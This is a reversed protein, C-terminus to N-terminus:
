AGATNANNAREMGQKVIQMARARGSTGLPRFKKGQLQNYVMFFERIDSAFSKDLRTVAGEPVFTKSNIPVAILRDNRNTKGKETQQAELVGLLRGLTLCGTFTPENTVVLVDLPDGDGGLTGPLFGFNFQFVLGFPMAKDYKFLGTKEDYKYKTRKGRPTEIIMNLAGSEPDFTPLSAINPSTMEIAFKAISIALAM